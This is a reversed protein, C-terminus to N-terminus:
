VPDTALGSAVLDRRLADSPTDLVAALAHLDSARVTMVRGNYDGRRLQIATLYRAILVAEADSRGELRTLDLRVGRDTGPPDLDVRPGPLLEAMPIRYFDALSRLRTVSVAREGREYAGVVSAKLEGGSEREVDHLSYGQQARVNRLREGLEQAYRGTRDDGTVTDIGMASM